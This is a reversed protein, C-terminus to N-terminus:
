PQYLELTQDQMINIDAKERLQEIWESAIEQGKVRMYVDEITDKNNVKAIHYGLQTRFPESVEGENLQFVQEFEQLFEGNRIATLSISGLNGGINKTQEHESYRSALEEFSEGGRARMAIDQARRLIRNEEEQSAGPPVRLLIHAIQISDSPKLDPNNEQFEQLDEESPRSIKQPALRPVVFRELYSRLFIKRQQKRMEDLTMNMKAEQQALETASNFQSRFQTMYKDTAEEVDKMIRDYQDQSLRNKTEQLILLDNIMKRLMLRRAQNLQQPSISNPTFAPDQTRLEVYIQEDVESSLILEGNVIADITELVEANAATVLLCIMSLVYITHKM